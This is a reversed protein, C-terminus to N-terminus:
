SPFEPKGNSSSTPTDLVNHCLVIQMYEDPSSHTRIQSPATMQQRRAKQRASTRPKELSPSCYVSVSAQNSDCDASIFTLLSRCSMRNSTGTTPRWATSTISRQRTEVSAPARRCARGIIQAGLSLPDTFVDTLIEPPPNPMKADNNNNTSVTDIGHRACALSPKCSATLLASSDRADSFAWASRIGM